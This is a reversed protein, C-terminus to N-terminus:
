LVVFTRLAKVQRDEDTVQLYYTGPGGLSSPKIMYHKQDVAEKWIVQGLENIIKFTYKGTLSIDGFDITVQEKAPNPYINLHGFSEEVSSVATVADPTWSISINSFNNNGTPTLTQAAASKTFAFSSVAHDSTKNKGWGMEIYVRYDGDAVVSGSVNKGDWQSTITGYSSLTSGTVADVLNKNSIAIWSTLHDDENGYKARTKIFISPNATNQIWVALVHRTGYDANPAFTNCSFSFTGTTQASVTGAVALGALFFLIGTRIRRM